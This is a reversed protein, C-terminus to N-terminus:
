KQDQSAINGLSDAGKLALGAVVLLQGWPKTSYATGVAAMVTGVLGFVGAFTTKSM